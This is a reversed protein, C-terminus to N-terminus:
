KSSISFYKSKLEAPTSAQSRQELVLFVFWAIVSMIIMEGGDEVITLLRLISQPASLAEFVFHIIDVVVGCFAFGLLLLFLRVSIQKIGADQEKRYSLTLMGLLLSGVGAYVILEGVDRTRLLPIFSFDITNQIAQGLGEHIELSDDLLTFFFLISWSVYSLSKRYIALFGLSFALFATKCYQFIEAYGRDQAISFRYDTILDTTRYICHLVIFALDIALLLILFQISRKSAPLHLLKKM